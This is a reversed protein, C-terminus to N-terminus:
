GRARRRAKGRGAGSPRAFRSVVGREAEPAEVQTVMVIVPLSDPLQGGTVPIITMCHALGVKDFHLIADFQDEGALVMAQAADGAQVLTVDDTDVHPLDKSGVAMLRFGDETSDLTPIMNLWNSYMNTRLSNLIAGDSMNMDESKAQLVSVKLNSLMEKEFLDTVLTRGEDSLWNFVSSQGVVGKGSVVQSVTVSGVELEVQFGGSQLQSLLVQMESGDAVQAAAKAAIEERAAIEAAPDTEMGAGSFMAVESDLKELPMLQQGVLRPLDVFFETGINNESAFFIAGKHSEVIMKAIALGLGTGGQSRTDGMDAQTFKDFITAQAEKPIGPGFDRLAFRVRGRHVSLSVIIEKDAGSFKAANSMLNDMVQLLRDKEGMTMFGGDVEELHLRMTCKFKEAYFKNSEMAQEVVELMDVPALKLDMKGNEFKEMDLIDNILLVLRDCNDAAMGIMKDMQPTLEGIAGSKALGLAGKMSTLPTRLEHSVTAVFENKAKEAVKRATIDRYIAILRPEDNDPQVYELSIEYPTGDGATVEWTMRRQPGEELAQCRMELARLDNDTLIDKASRGKWTGGVRDEILKETATRNCYLLDLSGPRLVVVQDEILELSDHFSEDSIGKRTQTMDTAVVAIESLLDGAGSVPIVTCQAWAATGDERLIKLPGDWPAGVEMAKMIDNRLIEQEREPLLDSLPTGLLMSRERDTTACFSENVHLIRGDPKLMCFVTHEEVASRYFIKSRIESELVDKQQEALLINRRLQLILFLLSCIIFTTMGLIAWKYSRFIRATAQLLYNEYPRVRLSILLDHVEQYNQPAQWVVNGAAISEEAEADISLMANIVLALTDNPVEANASLVWEPYLPTSVWFPFDPFAMPSLPVFDDLNIVGEAALQELVGAPVVGADVLGTQVAYVVERQNGGSFVLESLMDEVDLRRRRFEQEALWWGSFDSAAVAMVSAGRLQNIQRVPSDARVFILAGIDSYTREEWFRARSLVARAGSEVEATVYMAPNTLAFDVAGTAMAEILAAHSFPQVNFRYPSEAFQAERNLYDITPRWSELARTAGETSLVGVTFVETDASFQAQQADAATARALLAVTLAALLIWFGFWRRLAKLAHWFDTNHAM